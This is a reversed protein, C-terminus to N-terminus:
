SVVLFVHIIIKDENILYTYDYLQINEKHSYEFCIEKQDM